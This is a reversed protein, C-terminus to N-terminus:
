MVSPLSTRWRSGAEDKLGALPEPSSQRQHNDRGHTGSLSRGRPDWRGSPLRAQCSAALQVVARAELVGGLKSGGTAANRRSGRVLASLM